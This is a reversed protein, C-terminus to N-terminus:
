ISLLITKDQKLDYKGQYQESEIYSINDHGYLMEYEDHYVTWIM